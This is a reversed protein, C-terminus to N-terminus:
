YGNIKLSCFLYPPKGTLLATGAAGSPLEGPQQILGALCVPRTGENAQQWAVLDDDRPVQINPYQRSLRERYWDFAFLNADVLRLDPRQGEVHHFYWLTFITRDGPTLLIADAPAARLLAEALARPQRDQSLDQTPWLALVLFAPLLLAAAGLRKLGPAILLALLMLGPIVIIAADLTDYLLAFLGYLAATLALVAATPDNTRLLAVWRQARSGRVTMKNAIIFGAPVLAIPLLGILRASNLSLQVNNAYLQASVLWWWGSADTPDGWVVPSGGRALWPLLLLPALGLVFGALIRPRRNTTLALPLMLLSTLHTTVALGLWLGTWIPASRRSWALLFAALALSNLAYVEAVIAQGWVLPTFAFLLAATTAVPASVRMRHLSGIALMLLGVAGAMCVASFLNYRYAITGLPLLSFLKGLLVYAPYGPPHSIGLTVSATIVEGGDMASNSWTLDPALTVLYVALAVAASGAAFFPLRNTTLSNMEHKGAL